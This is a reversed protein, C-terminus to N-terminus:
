AVAGRWALLEPAAGVSVPNAAIPPADIPSESGSGSLQGFM